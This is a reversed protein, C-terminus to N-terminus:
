GKEVLEGAQPLRFGIVSLWPLELIQQEKSQPSLETIPNIIWLGACAMPSLGLSLKGSCM